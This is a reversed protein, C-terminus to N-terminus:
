NVALMRLTVLSQERPAADVIGAGTLKWGPLDVRARYEGPPIPRIRVGGSNFPFPGIQRGSPDVLFLEGGSLGDEFPDVIHVMLAAAPELPVPEDLPVAALVLPMYGPHYFDIRDIDRDALEFGGVEDTVVCDTREDGSLYCVRVGPVGPGDLDVVKGNLALSPSVCLLLLLCRFM